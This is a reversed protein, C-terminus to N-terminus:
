NRSGPPNGLEYLPTPPTTPTNVQPLGADISNNVQPLGADTLGGGGGGRNELRQATAAGFAPPGSGAVYPGYDKEYEIRVRAWSEEVQTVFRDINDKLQEPSQSTDLATWADQLLTMEERTLQGLGSSGDASADRMQALSDFGAYARLTSLKSQLDTAGTGGVYRLVQGGLGASWLSTMGKAEAALENIKIAQAEQGALM